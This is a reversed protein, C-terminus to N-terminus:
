PRRRRSRCRLAVSLGAGLAAAWMGSAGAGWGGPRPGISCDCSGRVTSSDPWQRVSGDLENAALSADEDAGDDRSGRGGAGGAAMMGALAARGGSSAAARGGSGQRPGVDETGSDAVGADREAAVQTVGMPAAKGELVVHVPRSVRLVAGSESLALAGIGRVGGWTPDWTASATEGSVAVDPALEAQQDFFDVRKAQGSIGDIQLPLPQSASIRAAAMPQQLDLPQHTVFGRWLKALGKSPLWSAGAKDDPYMAFEAITPVDSEVSDDNHDGLWGAEESLAQLAVVGKAPDASAPYRAAVMEAFFPAFAPEVQGEEHSRDWERLEAWLAHQARGEQVLSHIVTPVDPPEDSGWILFGPVALFSPDLPAKAFGSKNLCFAIVREPAFQAFTFSFYGGNSFGELLLPVNALEAHTTQTGLMKLVDLLAQGPGSAANTYSGKFQTGVIGFGLSKAFAQWFANRARDRTDGSGGDGQGGTFVVVGRILSLGDPYFLTVDLSRSDGYSVQASASEARAQVPMAVLGLVLACM